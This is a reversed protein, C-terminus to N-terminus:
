APVSEFRWRGKSECVRYRGPKRPPGDLESLYRHLGCTHLKGDLRERLPHQVHFRKDEITVIHETEGDELITSVAGPDPCGIFSCTVYGGAGLFLTSGCGMPCYGQVKRDDSVM